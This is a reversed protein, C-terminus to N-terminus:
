EPKFTFTFSRLQEAVKPDPPWPLPSAKRVAAEASRDFAPDGSSSVVQADAVEGGPLLRVQIKCSLGSKASPPRLWSRTVKPKIYMNAWDSAAKKAQQEMAARNEEELQERL